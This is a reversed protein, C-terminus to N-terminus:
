IFCESKYFSMGCIEKQDTTVPFSFSTGGREFHVKTEQMESDLRKIVLSIFGIRYLLCQSSNQNYSATMLIKQQIQVNWM